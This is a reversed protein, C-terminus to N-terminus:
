VADVWQVISVRCRHLRDRVSRSRVLGVVGFLGAFIGLAVNAPEPVATIDLSWSTLNPTGGGGVVDSFFLTWTGNPSTGNFASFNAATSASDFAAAASLPDITRGDPAFTGTTGNGLSTHINDLATSALILTTLGSGSAGLPDSAGVGVRNLLVATGSGHTLYAYLNGNYGGSVNLTVVVDTINYDYIDSFTYTNVRGSPDGDPIIGGSLAGSSYLGAHTTFSLLLGLALLYKFHKM